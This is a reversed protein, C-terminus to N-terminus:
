KRYRYEDALKENFLTVFAAMRGELSLPSFRSTPDIDDVGHVTSGDYMVIDGIQCKDEYFVKKGDRVVYAGGEKFDVGKESMVLIAQIYQANLTQRINNMGQVDVHPGMFGGGKPYHQIRSATYAGDAELRKAYDKPMKCMHNRVEALTEFLSHMGYIDECWLPNYFVRFLRALKDTSPSVIGVAWKQFNTKTMSPDIGLSPYDDEPSFRSELMRRGNRVVQPDTLGRLIIYQNENIYQAVEDVPIDDVSSIYTVETLAPIKVAETAQTQSM